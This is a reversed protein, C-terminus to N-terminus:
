GSESARLDRRWLQTMLLGRTLAFTLLGVIPVIAKVTQKVIM